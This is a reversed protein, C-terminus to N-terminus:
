RQASSYGYYDYYGEAGYKSGYGYGYGYKRSKKVDVHDLVIGALPANVEALRELGKRILPVPTADSKVMYIVTSAQTALVLPDSVAQVPPADIIIRDYQTALKELLETFRRTSLLELPNPPLTGCAMVDMGDFSQIAQESTANGAAVDALGFRDDDFDFIRRFTPKRMDAELVLVREMQGLAAGLNSVLSTKGEGPTSSTVVIIKHPDDLGSLVVGTRITRVAESFARDRDSSYLRAIQKREMRKKQLPLLGLMPLGLKDEVDGSGRVRNDFQERLLALGISGLLALVASILTIRAKRPKVAGRPVVADDVVRANADQVDATATTEKLRNLFTNYLTRNTEVERQLEQFRFEKSQVERIAERNNEFAQKLSNLDAQALEYKQEISAVVQRVQNRLSETASNLENQAEIMTPHRPGYRQSLEDVKARAQAEEALFDSVLKNSRVVPVTAQERWSADTVDAIQQYQNEARALAQRAEVLRSNLQSLESGEVTTVGDMDILDEKEVYAQLKRESQKLQEKLEAMRDSMWGTAQETMDLRAQLQREIYGNALATAAEAATQPDAMEVQIDVLQTNRRPEVTVRGRFASVVREFRQEDTLENPALEEPQTVSIMDDLGIARIWGRWDTLAALDILPPEQQEPDFEPHDTLNLDRVVKEALGRSKLLEFQTQLYERGAAMSDVGQIGVVNGRDSEILLTSTGRYIPTLTSVYLYVLMAVLLPLTIIGWKHRMLTVWLKRLDIVDDDDPQATGPNNTAM